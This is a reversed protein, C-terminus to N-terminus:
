VRKIEFHYFHEIPQLEEIVHQVTAGSPGHHCWKIFEAVDNENGEVSATVTGAPDNRIWGKLNLDHAKQLATQRFFVGQVNGTVIIKKHIM